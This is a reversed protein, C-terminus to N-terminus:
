AGLVEAPNQKVMRRVEDESFDAALFREIWHGFGVPPIPNTEQGLDTSLVVQETGTVRIQRAIDAVVEDGNDRTAAIACHEVYGGLRATEQQVEVPIWMSAHTIVSRIGRGRAEKMLTLTEDGNLHGSALVAGHAKICDLVEHVAPLLAGQDDVVEVPPTRWERGGVARARSTVSDFTPMWVVTAGMTLSVEVAEPNIGGNGQDLSLAGYVRFGPTEEQLAWALPQTPYDHSKLVLGGMRTAAAMQVLERSDTRRITFPDPAAHVHADIAGDLLARAREPVEKLAKEFEQRRADNM